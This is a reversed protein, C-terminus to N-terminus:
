ICHLWGPTYNKDNGRDGKTGSSPRHDTVHSQKFSGLQTSGSASRRKGSKLHASPPLELELSIRSASRGLSDPPVMNEKFEQGQM